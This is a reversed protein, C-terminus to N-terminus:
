SIVDEVTYCLTDQEKAKQIQFRIIKQLIEEEYDEPHYTDVVLDFLRARRLLDARQVMREPQSYDPLKEMVSLALKRCAIANEVDAHDDCDWAACLLASFAEDWKEKEAAILYQRYFRQALSSVFQKGDCTQYPSDQLFDRSVWTTADLKRAVYGCHPCEQVWWYMTSRQMEPPRTDLDAYGFANTSLLVTQRSEGGCVACNQTVDMPLSM